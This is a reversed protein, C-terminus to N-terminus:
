PSAPDLLQRARALMRTLEQREDAAAAQGHLTEIGRTADAVRVRDVQLGTARVEHWLEVVLGLEAVMVSRAAAESVPEDQGMPPRGPGGRVADLQDLGATLMAAGVGTLFLRRSSHM